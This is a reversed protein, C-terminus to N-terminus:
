RVCVCTQWPLEWFVCMPFTSPSPDHLAPPSANRRSIWTGCEYLYLSRYAANCHWIWLRQKIAHEEQSLDLLLLLAVASSDDSTCCFCGASPSSPMSRYRLSSPQDKGLIVILNVIIDWCQLSKRPSVFGRRGDFLKTPACVTGIHRNFLKRPM